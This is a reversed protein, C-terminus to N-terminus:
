PRPLEVLEGVRAWSKPYRLMSAEELPAATLRIEDVLGYWTPGIGFASAPNPAVRAPPESAKVAGDRLISVADPSVRVGLAVWEDVPIPDPDSAVGSETQM